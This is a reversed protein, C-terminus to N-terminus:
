ERYRQPAHRNRVPVTQGETGELSSSAGRESESPEAQSRRGTRVVTAQRGGPGGHGQGGERETSSAPSVPVSVHAEEGGPQPQVGRRSHLERVEVKRLELYREGEENEIVRTEETHEVIDSGRRDPSHLLEGDQLEQYRQHQRVWTCRAALYLSLTASGGLLPSLALLAVIARAQTEVLKRDTSDLQISSCPLSDRPVLGDNADGESNRDIRVPLHASPSVTAAKWLWLGSEILVFVTASLAVCVHDSSISSQAPHRLFTTPFLVTLTSWARHLIMGTPDVEQFCAITLWFRLLVSTAALGLYHMKADQWIPVHAEDRVFIRFLIQYTTLSPTPGPFSPPAAQVPAGFPSRLTRRPNSVPGHQQQVPYLSILLPFGHMVMVKTFSDPHQLVALLGAVTFLPLGYKDPLWRQMSYGVKDMLTPRPPLPKKQVSLTTSFVRVNPDPSRRSTRPPLASSAARLSRSAVRPMETVPRQLEQDADSLLRSSADDDGHGLPEIVRHKAKFVKDARVSLLDQADLRYLVALNFLNFAFSIAVLQGLAMVTWVHPIRLRQSEHRLFLAWAGVTVICIESSWWWSTADKIVEMWAEKFLSLSSLWQSIRLVRLHLAPVLLDPRALDFPPPTPPLPHSTLHCRELYSAYSHRLFAIMYYWTSTLSLLALLALIRKAHAAESKFAWTALRILADAVPTDTNAAADKRRLRSLADHANFADVNAGVPLELVGLEASEPPSMELQRYRKTAIGIVRYALYLNVLLYSVLILFNPEFLSNILSVLGPDYPSM